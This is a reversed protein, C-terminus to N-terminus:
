PRPWRQGAIAPTSRSCNTPPREYSFLGEPLLFYARMPAEASAQMQAPGPNTVASPPRIGQTAWALQGIM